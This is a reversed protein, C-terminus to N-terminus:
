CASFMREIGPERERWPFRSRASKEGLYVELAEFSKRELESEQEPNKKNNNSM